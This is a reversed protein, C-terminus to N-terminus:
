AEDRAVIRRRMKRGAGTYIQHDIMHQHSFYAHNTAVGRPPHATIEHEELGEADNDGPKFMYRPGMYMGHDPHSMSELGQAICKPYRVWSKTAVDYYEWVKTSDYYGSESEGEELGLDNDSPTFQEPFGGEDASKPNPM